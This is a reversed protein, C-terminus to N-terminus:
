KLFSNWDLEPQEDMALRQWVSLARTIEEAIARCDWIELDASSGIRDYSLHALRKGARHNLGDKNGALHVPRPRQRHWESPDAFFDRALVDAERANDDQSKYLFDRLNRAHLLFSELLANLWVHRAELNLGTFSERAIIEATHNLMNREYRIHDLIDRQRGLPPRYGKEREGPRQRRQAVLAQLFTICDDAVHYVLRHEQTIRRSWTDPDLHRLREPKGIGAFPDRLVAEMLKLIRLATNRDKAIWYDLDERFLDALVCERTM